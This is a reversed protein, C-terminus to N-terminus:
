GLYRLEKVISNRQYQVQNVQVVKLKLGPEFQVLGMIKLINLYNQLIGHLDIRKRLGAFLFM